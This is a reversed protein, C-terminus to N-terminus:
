SHSLYNFKQANIIQFNSEFQFADFSFSIETDEGTIIKMSLNETTLKIKGNSDQYINAASFGTSGSFNKSAGYLSSIAILAM